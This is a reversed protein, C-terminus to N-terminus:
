LMEDTKYDLTPLKAEDFDTRWMEVMKRSVEKWEHVSSLLGSLNLNYFDGPLDELHSLSKELLKVTGTPMGIQLKYFGAAVQILGQLLHREDMQSDRWAEEWIEHAEFFKRNNFLNKGADIAEQIEPELGGPQVSDQEGESM